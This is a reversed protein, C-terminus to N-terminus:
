RTTADVPVAVGALKLMPLVGPAAALIVAVLPLPCLAPILAANALARTAVTVSENPLATGFTVTVNVAGACVPGLTVNAPPTLVATVFLEPAAVEAVIVAFALEPPGYLTTADEPAAVVALKARVLVNTGNMETVFAVM